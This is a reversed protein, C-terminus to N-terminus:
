VNKIAKPTKRIPKSHRVDVVSSISVSSPLVIEKPKPNKQDILSM